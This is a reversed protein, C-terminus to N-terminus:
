LDILQSALSAHIPNPRQGYDALSKCGVCAFKAVSESKEAEAEAKALSAHLSERMVTASADEQKELVDRAIGKVMDTISSTFRHRTEGAADIIRKALANANKPTKPVGDNYIDYKRVDSSRQSALRCDGLIDGTSSAAGRLLPLIDAQRQEVQNVLKESYRGGDIFRGLAAKLFNQGGTLFSFSGSGADVPGKLKESATNSSQLAQQLLLSDARRLHDLAERLAKKVYDNERPLGAIVDEADAYLEWHKEMKVGEAAKLVPTWFQEVKIQLASTEDSEPATIDSIIDSWGLVPFALLAFVARIDVATM